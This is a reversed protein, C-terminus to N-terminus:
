CSPECWGLWQLPPVVPFLLVLGREFDATTCYSRRAAWKKLSKLGRQKTFWTPESSGLIVITYFMRIACISSLSPWLFSDKFTVLTHMQAASWAASSSTIERQPKQFAAFLRQGLGGYHGRLPWGTQRHGDEAYKLGSSKVNKCESKHPQAADALTFSPLSGARRSVGASIM